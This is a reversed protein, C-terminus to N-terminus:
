FPQRDNVDEERDDWRSEEVDWDTPDEITEKPATPDLTALVEQRKQEEERMQQRVEERVLMKADQILEPLLAEVEWRSVPQPMGQSAVAFAEQEGCPTLAYVAQPRYFQTAM